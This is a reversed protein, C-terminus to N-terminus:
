QVNNRKKELRKKLMSSRRSVEWIAPTRPTYVLLVVCILFAKYISGVKSYTSDRNLSLGSFVSLQWALQKGERM